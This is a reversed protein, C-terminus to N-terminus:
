VCLGQKTSTDSSVTKTRLYSRQNVPLPILEFLMKKNPQGNM